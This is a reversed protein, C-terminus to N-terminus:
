WTFSLLCLGELFGVLDPDQGLEPRMKQSEWAEEVGAM